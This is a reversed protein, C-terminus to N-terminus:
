DLRMLAPQESHHNSARPQINSRPKKFVRQGVLLTALLPCTSIWRARCRSSSGALSKLRLGSVIVIPASGPWPRRIKSRHAGCTPGAFPALSGSRRPVRMKLLTHDLRETCYRVAPTPSPDRRLAPVRVSRGPMSFSLLRMHDQAAACFFFFIPPSM